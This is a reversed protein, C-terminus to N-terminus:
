IITWTVHGLHGGYGYIAFVEFINEEFSITRHDHFKAHLMIYDLGVFKIFIIVRLQGQDMKLSEFKAFSTKYKFYARMDPSRKCSM